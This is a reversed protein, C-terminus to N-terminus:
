PLRRRPHRVDDHHANPVFQVGAITGVPDRIWQKVAVTRIPLVAQFTSEHEAVRRRATRDSPLVLLRSVSDAEWGLGHAISAALRAKRDLNSLMAQLDPVVSKVEIVLLARREPHHALVDISGREGFESFSVEARPTWGVSLLSDIVGQLLAAHREDRLRDLAEGHWYVRASLKAGLAATIWMLVGLPSREAHGGEITAIMSRSVGAEDALRQQTWGRRRRLIRLDGGIRTQDVSSSTAM